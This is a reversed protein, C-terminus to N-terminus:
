YNVGGSSGRGRGFALFILGLVVSAVGVIVIIKFWNGYEVLGYAADSPLAVRPDSVNYVNYTCKWTAPTGLMDQTANSLIYQGQSNLTVSYNATTIVGGGTGNACYGFSKGWTTALTTAPSPTITENAVQYSGVSTVNADRMGMMVVVGIAVVIGLVIIGIALETLDVAPKKTKIEM